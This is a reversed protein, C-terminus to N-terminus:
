REVGVDISCIDDIEKSYVHLRVERLRCTKIRDGSRETALGEMRVGYRGPPVAMTDLWRWTMSLAGEACRVQVPMGVIHPMGGELTIYGEEMFRSTDVGDLDFVTGDPWPQDTLIIATAMEEDM